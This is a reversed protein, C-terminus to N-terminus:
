TTSATAPAQLGDGPDPPRRTPSRTTWRVGCGGPRFESSLTDLDVGELSTVQTWPVAQGQIQDDAAPVKVSTVGASSCSRASRACM